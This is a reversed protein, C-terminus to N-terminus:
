LKLDRIVPVRWAFWFVALLTVAGMIFVAVPGGLWAALAGALLGGLPSLGRNMLYLSLVRGRMNSPALIQIITQDQSGYTTNAMGALFLLALSIPVSRSLAFLMLWLGFLGASVLVARGRQNLGGAMTLGVAGVLAGVGSSALLMGQGQAGIELIDRAFIPMLGVYPMAILTPVLGFLMMSRIVPDGAIYRVGEVLDARFAALGTSEGIRRALSPVVMQLTCSTAWVYMVAQVYYAGDVGVWAILFGAVAPGLTRSLNFVASNLAVANLLYDKSVLDSILSQRAPQQFAQATGVLLTTLYVHWPEVLGTTVLVALVVNLVCNIMQAAVLQAKRNYRDAIVGAVVGLLLTPIARTANVLGLDLASGTLLYILWTRTTQDMWLGMTTGLQGLWLLRYDRLRLSALPGLTAPAGRQM